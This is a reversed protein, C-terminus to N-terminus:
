CERRWGGHKIKRFSTGVRGSLWLLFFSLALVVLPFNTLHIMGKVGTRKTSTLPGAPGPYRTELILCLLTLTAALILSPDASAAGDVMHKKKRFSTGVKRSLWLLFFSLALAVLSLTTVRIMDKLRPRKQNINLIRLRCIYKESTAIAV